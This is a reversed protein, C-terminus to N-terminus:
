SDPLKSKINTLPTLVTLTIEALDLKDANMRIQMDVCYKLEETGVYIKTDTITKGFVIQLSEGAEKKKFIDM